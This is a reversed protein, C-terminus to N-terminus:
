TTETCRNLISVMAYCNPYPSFCGSMANNAVRHRIDVISAQHSKSCALLMECRTGLATALGVTVVDFSMLSEWAEGLCCLMMLYGDSEKRLM